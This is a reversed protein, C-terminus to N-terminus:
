PTLARRWARLKHAFPIAHAPSTSPLCRVCLRSLRAHKKAYARYCQAAKGGNLLVCRIRPHRQLFGALNNYRANKIAGDLSGNRECTDIVDWLAIRHRKVCRVQERYTTAEGFMRALIRWFANRPHAYYQRRRLSLEGPMSGLILLQATPTSIPSLGRLM